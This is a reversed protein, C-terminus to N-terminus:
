RVRFGRPVCIATPNCERCGDRAPCRPKHQLPLLQRSAQIVAKAVEMHRTTSNGRARLLNFSRVPHM